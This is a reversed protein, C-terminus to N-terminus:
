GLILLEVGVDAVTLKGSEAQISVTKGPRSHVRVRLRAPTLTFQSTGKAPDLQSLARRLLDYFIVLAGTSLTVEELRSSAARLEAYAAERESALRESERLALQEGIPDETIKSVRRAGRDVPSSVSVTVRTKAGQAWSVTPLTDDADPALNWHRAPWLGFAEAYLLHAAEVTSVDFRQALRIFEGRHGPSIGAGGTSRKVNALLSGIAKSTADRLADVQSVRGSRSVFWDALGQWDSETRGRAREVSDGLDATPALLRLVTPLVDHLKSLAVTIPATFRLVDDVVLQIYEVLLGRLGAIEEPNLDHRAVVQGVYAYFDRVTAALEGHQLFLTTVQESLQERLRTEETANFANNIEAAFSDVAIRHIVELGRQIAPLMERSVERAGLPVELVAEADRHIRLALKDVQYRVSGQSFEAISRASTERRGPRLNGLDTLRHLRDLVKEIASEGPDIRGEREASALANSVDIASLDAMLTSSFLRMIAFYTRGYERATLYTYMRLRQEADDALQGSGAADAVEV